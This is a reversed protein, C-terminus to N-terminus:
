GLLIPLLVGAGLVFLWLAPAATGLPRRLREERAAIRPDLLLWANHRRELLWFAAAAVAGYILHGVMAPFQAEAAAGTWLGPDHMFIPFLTLPGAYWGILGYVLGWCIGSALNPAERQFLLGYSVGLLISISLHIAIGLAPSNGGAVAAIQSLSGTAILVLMYLLGGALGAAAGWQALRIFRVGPGEPERRIPDSETLFRVTLRDVLAYLLGVILGYVIYGILPGFLQVAHDRSWDIPQRQWLPVITLPGLFWWFIGYAMGWAMSSGYGLVDRQFLLGFSAGIAVAPLIPLSHIAMAAVFGALGGGVIARAFGFKALNTRNRHAGITGLALGLPLGYCILYGVLAPFNDRNTQYAASFNAALVQSGTVVALWLLLAYSIGWQFGSGLNLVRRSFVLAFLLGYVAGLVPGNLISTHIAAMLVLGGLLGTVGCVLAPVIPKTAM